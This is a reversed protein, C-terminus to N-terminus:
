PPLFAFFPGFHCFIGYMMHSTMETQLIIYKPTKEMEKFIKIKQTCLPIFPCFVTWFALFQRDGPTKEINFNQNELNDLPQFPLLHTFIDIETQQM